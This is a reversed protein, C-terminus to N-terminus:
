GSTNEYTNIKEFGGPRNIRQRQRISLENSFVHRKVGATNHMGYALAHSTWQVNYYPKQVHRISNCLSNAAHKKVMIRFGYWTHIRELQFVTVHRKMPIWLAKTKQQPYTAVNAREQKHQHKTIFQILTTNTTKRITQKNTREKLQSSELMMSSVARYYYCSRWKTACKFNSSIIKSYNAKTLPRLSRLFCFSIFLKPM